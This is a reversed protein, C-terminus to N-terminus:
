EFCANQMAAFVGDANAAGFDKTSKCALIFIPTAVVFDGNCVIKCYVLYKLFM